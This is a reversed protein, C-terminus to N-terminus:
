ALSTPDNYKEEIGRENRGWRWFTVALCALVFLIVGLLFSVGAIAGKTQLSDKDGFCVACAWVWRTQLVMGATLLLTRLKIM